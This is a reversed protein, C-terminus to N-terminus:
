TMHNRAGDSVAPGPPLLETIAFAVVAALIVVPMMASSGLLLVVLVVSSVPLRLTIAAAAAMGAAMAPVVGLGPLPSLLVGAAAGLFLGPFVPGGRLSGLCLAYAAGKFLLVAFLAGVGWAHPDTALKALTSQGSSAVDAPSRGTILAYLAACAAAGLACLVTRVLPRAAVYSAILRAGALLPHLVASLAVAIALAWLVDAGDLRPIPASLNLSLDGTALGTWRGLGTFVLAGVGSSLLAPLMVAFLQPGGVGAVEILLVAAILPNGFIASVAAAAGAAGLLATSRATAPAKALDRFVLALGGGLAILPAEPGLVAGFPLGAVAALLVGPLAASSPGGTHLGSAPVHGGAGPLRAAVLGVATGAVLLLPFPWWWPPANMGMAHPLDAWLGHELEHLLVLFWFAALSVPIGILACLALSKLYGPSRLLQRLVDAEQPQTGTVPPGSRARPETM